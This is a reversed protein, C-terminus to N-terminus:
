ADDWRALRETIKSAGEDGIDCHFNFAFQLHGEAADTPAALNVPKIDLKLRFGEFDKSLYAGFRADSTIFKKFLPRDPMAFLERTLRPMDGDDPTLHWVFNLGLARYPTHPLKHVIPGLKEILIQQQQEVAAIPVFQLQENIMFLNFQPSRVQVVMDTFISGKQIDEEGLVGNRVLWLQSLVTPNFQQAVIVVVSGAQTWLM